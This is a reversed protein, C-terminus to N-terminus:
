NKKIESLTKHALHRCYLIMEFQEHELSYIRDSNEYKLDTLIRLIDKLAQIEDNNESKRRLYYKAYFKDEELDGREEILEFCGPKIQVGEEYLQALYAKCWDDIIKHHNRSIERVAKQIPDLEEKIPRIRITNPPDDPDVYTEYGPVSLVFYGGNGAPIPNSEIENM